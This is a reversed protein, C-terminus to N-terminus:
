VKRKKNIKLEKDILINSGRARERGARLPFVTKTTGREPGETRAQLPPRDEGYGKWPGGKKTAQNETIPKRTVVSHGRGASKKLKRGIDNQHLLVFSKELSPVNM